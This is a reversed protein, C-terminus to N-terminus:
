NQKGTGAYCVFRGICHSLELQQCAPNTPSTCRSYFYDNVLYAGETLATPPPCQPAIPVIHFEEEFGSVGGHRVINPPDFRILKKPRTGELRGLHGMGCDDTFATLKLKPLNKNIMGIYKIPPVSGDHLYFLHPSDLNNEVIYSYDVNYDLVTDMPVTEMDGKRRTPLLSPDAELVNGRWVYVMGDHEVVARHNGCNAKNIAKLYREAGTTTELISGDDDVTHMTPVDICEGKPGFKGGHYMCELRGNKMTGMSLPVSRHPCVDAMAVLEGNEDRYIVIPESWLRTAFPKDTLRNKKLVADLPTEYGDIQWSFGVAYWVRDFSPDKIIAKNNSQSPMYSFVLGGVRNSVHSAISGPKGDTTRSSALCFHVAGGWRARHELLEVGGKDFFEKAQSTFPVDVFPKLSDTFCLMTEVTKSYYFLEQMINRVAPENVYFLVAEFVFFTPRSTDLGSNKLTEILSTGEGCDNLDFPILTSGKMNPDHEAQFKKYLTEKGQCVSPLDVEFFNVKRDHANRFRLARTDYGAGFLVINCPLNDIGNRCSSSTLFHDVGSDIFETRAQIWETFKVAPELLRSGAETTVLRNPNNRPIM